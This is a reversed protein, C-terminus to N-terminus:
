FRQAGSCRQRGPWGGRGLGPDLNGQGALLICSLCVGLTLSGGGPPSGPPLAACGALTNALPSGQLLFIGRCWRVKRGFLFTSVSLVSEHNGAPPPLPFLLGPLKPNASAFWYTYPGVTHCLSSYETDESLGYHFLIHFLVYIYLQTM